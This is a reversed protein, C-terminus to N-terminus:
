VFVHYSLPHPLFNGLEGQSLYEVLLDCLCGQVRIVHDAVSNDIVLMM